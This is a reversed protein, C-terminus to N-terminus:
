RWGCRWRSSSRRHRCAGSSRACCRRWLPGAGGRCGGGRWWPGLLVWVLVFAGGAWLLYGWGEGLAIMLVAGLGIEDTVWAVRPAVAALGYALAAAGLGIWLPTGRRWVQPWVQAKWWGDKM